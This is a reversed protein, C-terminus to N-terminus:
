IHGFPHPKRTTHVWARLIAGALFSKGAVRNGDELEPHRGLISLAGFREQRPCYSSQMHFVDEREEDTEMRVYVRKNAM